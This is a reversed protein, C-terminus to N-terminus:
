GWKNEWKTVMGGRAKKVPTKNKPKSNKERFKKIREEEKKLREKEKKSGVIATGALLTGAGLGLRLDKELMKDVLKSRKGERSKKEKARREIAETIKKGSRAGKAIGGGAKKVPKKTLADEVLKGVGAAAGTIGTAAVGMKVLDRKAKKFAPDKKRLAKKEKAKAEARKTKLTKSKYLKVESPKAMEKVERDIKKTEYRDRAMFMDDYKKQLEKTPKTKGPNEKGFRKTAKDLEKAVKKYEKYAEGELKRDAKQKAKLAIDSVKKSKSM